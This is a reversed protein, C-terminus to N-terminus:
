YLPYPFLVTTLHKGQLHHGSNLGQCVYIHGMVLYISGLPYLNRPRLMQKFVSDGKLYCNEYLSQSYDDLNHEKLSKCLSKFTKINEFNQLIYISM